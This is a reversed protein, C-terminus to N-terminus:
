GPQSNMRGPFKRRAEKLVEEAVDIGTISTYSALSEVLIETFQGSGCGVDLIVGGDIGELLQKFIM